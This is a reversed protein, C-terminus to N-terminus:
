WYRQINLKKLEPLLEHTDTGPNENTWHRPSVVSTITTIPPISRLLHQEDNNHVSSACACFGFLPVSYPVDELLPNAELLLDRGRQRCVSSPLTFNGAVPLDAPDFCMLLFFGGFSIVQGRCDPDQLAHPLAIHLRPHCSLLDM